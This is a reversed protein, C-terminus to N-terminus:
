RGRGKGKPGRSPGSPRKSPSGPRSSNRPGGEPRRQESSRPPRGGSSREDGGSSRNGDRTPRSPASRSPTRPAAGGTHGTPRPSRPRDIGADDDYARTLPEAKQNRELVAHLEALEDRELERFEGKPLKGLRLPGYGIRELKMIKHGVRAFLRRIERNQGETMTIEVWVSDNQKKIPKVNHVRFKGETFFLGKRLTEYTEFSPSGAVQAKYLRFIRHRPHALKQALDGDNTVILLGTTNEDLRGVTFLRPGQEPFLDLVVRRGAPDNSTCIFGSPKNLMFYKKREVKLREGDLSIVDRSPDVTTGLQDATKGNVQVRGTTILEECNRRSGLGTQALFRQLRIPKAQIPAAHSNESSSM